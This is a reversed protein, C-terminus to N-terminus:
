IRSKVDASDPLASVKNRGVCDNQRLARYCDVMTRRGEPTIKPNLRRAFRIYRQMQVATFPPDLAKAWGFSKRRRSLRACYPSPPRLVCLRSSPPRVSAIVM